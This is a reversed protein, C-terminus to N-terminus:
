GTVKAMRSILVRVVVYQDKVVMLVAILTEIGRARDNGFGKSCRADFFAIM